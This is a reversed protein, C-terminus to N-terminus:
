ESNYSPGDNGGHHNQWDGVHQGRQNRSRFSSDLQLGGLKSNTHCGYCNKSLVPRVHSEFFEAPEQAGIPGMLAFLAIPLQFHGRV